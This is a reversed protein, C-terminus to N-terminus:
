RTLRGFGFSRGLGARFALHMWMRAFQELLVAESRGGIVIADFGMDSAMRSVREAAEQDGAIPLFLATGGIVPDLFAEAGITNFAKVLATGDYRGAIVDLVSTAHDPFDVGVANTADVLLASGVPGIAALTDLVASYPVALIIFDTGAAAADLAVVEAEVQTRANHVKDSELDRAAFRVSYGVANLRIALNTGVSGAGVITVVASV